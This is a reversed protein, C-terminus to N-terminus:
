YRQLSFIAPEAKGGSITSFARRGQDRDAEQAVMATYLNKSLIRLADRMQSWWETYMTKVLNEARLIIDSSLTIHLLGDKNWHGWIPSM